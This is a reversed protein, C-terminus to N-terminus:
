PPVVRGGLGVETAVAALADLLPRDTLPDGPATGPDASVSVVVREGTRVVLQTIGDSREVVALQTGPAAPPLAPAQEPNVSWRFTADAPAYAFPWALFSVNEVHVLVEGARDTQVAVRVSAAGFQDRRVQGVATTPELGSARAGDLVARVLPDEDSVVITSAPSDPPAEAVVFRPASPRCGVPVGAAEVREARAEAGQVARAGRPVVGTAPLGGLRVPHGADVVDVGFTLQPPGDVWGSSGVPFVPVWRTLGDDVYLCGGDLLLVGTLAPAGDAGVRVFGADAYRAVPGDAVVRPPTLEERWDAATARDFVRTRGCGAASPAGRGSGWGRGSVLLRLGPALDARLYRVTRRDLYVETRDVPPGRFWEGVELQVLVPAGPDAPATVALVTGDVAFGTEAALDASSADCGQDVADSIRELDTVSTSDPDDRLALVALVLAVALTPVVMSRGRVRPRRQTPASTQM